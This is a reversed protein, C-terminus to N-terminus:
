DPGDIPGDPGVNAGVAERSAKSAELPVISGYPRFAPRSYVVAVPGPGVKNVSTHPPSDFPKYHGLAPVRCKVSPSKEALLGLAGCVSVDALAMESSQKAWRGNVMVWGKAGKGRSQEAVVPRSVGDSPPAGDKVLTGVM